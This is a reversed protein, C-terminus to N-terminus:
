SQLWLLFEKLISRDSKWCWCSACSFSCFWGFLIMRVEMSFNDVRYPM